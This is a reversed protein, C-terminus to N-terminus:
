RESWVLAPPPEPVLENMWSVDGVAPLAAQCDVSCLRMMLSMRENQSGFFWGLIKGIWEILAEM